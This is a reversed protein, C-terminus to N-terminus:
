NALHHANGASGPILKCHPPRARCHRSHTSWIVGIEEDDFVPSKIVTSSDIPNPQLEYPGPFYPVKEWPPADTTALSNFLDFEAKSIDYSSRTGNVYISYCIKTQKMREEYRTQDDGALRNFTRRNYRGDQYGNMEKSEVHWGAAKAREMFERKTIIGFEPINVKKALAAGHRSGAPTATSM